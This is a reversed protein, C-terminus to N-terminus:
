EAGKRYPKSPVRDITMPPKEVPPPCKTGTEIICRQDRLATVKKPDQKVGDGAQYIEAVWSCARAMKAKMCKAELLKAGKAKSALALKQSKADTSAAAIEGLRWCARAHNKNCAKQFAARTKAGAAGTKSEEHWVLNASQWCADADGRACAKDFLVHARAQQTEDVASQLALVGGWYCTGRKNKACAAECADVDECPGEAPFKDAYAVGCLLAVVLLSKM